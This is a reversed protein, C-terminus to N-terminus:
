EWVERFRIGYRRFQNIIIRETKSLDAGELKQFYPKGSVYLELNDVTVREILEDRYHYKKTPPSLNQFRIIGLSETIIEEV